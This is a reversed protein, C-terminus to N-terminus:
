YWFDDLGSVLWDEEDVHDVVYKLVDDTNRVKLGLAKMEKTEVIVIFDYETTEINDESVITNCYPAEDDRFDKAKVLEMFTYSKTGTWTDRNIVEKCRIRALKEM